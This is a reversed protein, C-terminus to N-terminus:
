SKAAEAWLRALHQGVEVASQMDQVAVWELPGHLNHAGDFLNPCPLGMETLRSGDTGGRIPPSQPALGAARCAAYALDVPRMDNKIWNGMNRYQPKISVDIRTRPESAQLGACLGRLRQGLAALKADDHDRLIFGLTTKAANGSMDHPHIFGERGETTEPSVGERPLAALLKGALHVANVMGYKKATGPHTAVGEITVVAQDASFTEWGVEGPFEGDFTYACDAGLQKLDLRAVGRGIEEDPTFCLRLRGHPLEPHALLQEALSMIVAVGAKDDAGLLTTGSATIIDKGIARALWEDVAPDLVQAPDDPLTIRGGAYNRHVIPKVGEGSFDPATDVHALFAVTPVAHAVTSPITAMVYGADTLLVDSAGLAGLEDRLTKLLDWQRATSPVSTSADDSTTHIRVYRLLRSEISEPSNSM